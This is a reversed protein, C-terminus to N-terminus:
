SPHSHSLVIAKAVGMGDGAARSLSQYPPATALDGVAWLGPLGTAGWRDTEVEDAGLPMLDHLLDTNPGNGIYPCVGDAEISQGDSLHLLARGAALDIRDVSQGLLLRVGAEPLPEALAPRARLTSRRHILTVSRALPGLLLANEAARDGGGIVVVDRGRFWDPEQTPRRVLGARYLEDAGPVTLRRPSLGTAVVLDRALFRGESSEIRWRVQPDDHVPQIATVTCGYRVTAGMRRAGAALEEVMVQPETVPLGPYDVVPLRHLHLQGGPRDDRELVLAPLGLRGAWLATSLGAAGAGIIILDWRQM